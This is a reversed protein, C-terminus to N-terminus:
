LSTSSSALASIVAIIFALIVILLFPIITGIITEIIKTKFFLIYILVFVLYNFITNYPALIFFKSFLSLVYLVMLCLYKSKKTPKIDLLTIFINVTIILEILTAPFSIISILMENPSMLGATIKQLINM